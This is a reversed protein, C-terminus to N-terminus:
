SIIGKMEETIEDLFYRNKLDRAKELRAWITEESLGVGPFRLDNDLIYADKGNEDSPVTQVQITLEGQPEPIFLQVRVFAFQGIQPLEDPLNPYVKLFHDIPRGAPVVLRNIYRTAFMQIAGYPVIRRYLTWFSRAEDRFTEWRDYPTLRSFAFGNLRVQVVNRDDKSRFRYGLVRSDADSVGETGFKVQHARVESREGYSDGINAAFNALKPMLDAPQMEVEFAIVAEVIPAKNFHISKETM